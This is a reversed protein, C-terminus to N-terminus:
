PGYGSQTGDTHDVPRDSPTHQRPHPDPPHCTRHCGPRLGKHRGPPQRHLTPLSSGEAQSRLFSAWTVSNRRPASDVGANKLIEWVTSAAIAIGLGALEGHMRRYGWAPNQRAVHLVLSKINRHTVPRSDNPRSKKAWRRCLLDRHWRLITDPAVFLRLGACHMKPVLPSCCRSSRAIPGTLGHVNEQRPSNVSCSPSNIAYCCSRTTKHDGGRQWLRLTPVIRVALLYAFRLCV